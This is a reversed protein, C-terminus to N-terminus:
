RKGHIYSGNSSTDRIWISDKEKKVELHKGSVRTDEIGLNDNDRGVVFNANDPISMLKSRKNNTTTILM